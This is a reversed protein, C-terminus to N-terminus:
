ILLLALLLHLGVDDDCRMASQAIRDIPRLPQVIAAPSSFFTFSPLRKAFIAHAISPNANGKPPTTQDHHSEPALAKVMGGCVPFLRHITKHFPLACCGFVFVSTVMAPVAVGAFCLGALFIRKV